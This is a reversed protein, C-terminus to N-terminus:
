MNLKLSANKKLIYYKNKFIMWKKEVNQCRIKRLNQSESLCEMQVDPVFTLIWGLSKKFGNAVKEKETHTSPFQIKIKECLNLLDFIMWVSKMIEQYQVGHNFAIDYSSGVAFQHIAMSVRASLLIKRNPVAWSLKM